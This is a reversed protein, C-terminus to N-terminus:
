RVGRKSSAGVGIVLSDRVELISVGEELFGVAEKAVIDGGVVLVVLVAHLIDVVCHVVIQLSEHAIGM